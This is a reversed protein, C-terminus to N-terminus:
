FRFEDAQRTGDNALVLRIASRNEIANSVSCPEPVLVFTRIELLLQYFAIRRKRNLSRRVRRSILYELFNDSASAARPMELSKPFDARVFCHLRNRREGIRGSMRSPTGGEKREKCRAPSPMTGVAQTERAGTGWVVKLSGWRGSRPQGLRPGAKLM